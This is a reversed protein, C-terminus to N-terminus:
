LKGEKELEREAIEKIKEQIRRQKERDERERKNQEESEKLKDLYEPSPEILIEETIGAKFIRREKKGERDIFIEKKM